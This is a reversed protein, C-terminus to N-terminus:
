FSRRLSLHFVVDPSAGVVIDETVGIDLSTKASFHLAGGLTVQASPAGLQKLDSDSYFPTHV